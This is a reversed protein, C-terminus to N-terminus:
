VLKLVFIPIGTHFTYDLRWLRVMSDRQALFHLGHFFGHSFADGLSVVASERFLYTLSSAVRICFSGTTLGYKCDLEHGQHFNTPSPEHRNLSKLQLSRTTVM